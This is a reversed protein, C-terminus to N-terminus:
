LVLLVNESAVLETYLADIQERNQAYIAFTLSLFSDNKSVKTKIKSSDLDIYHERVITEVVSRFDEENRGLVKVYVDCPFSLLSDESM